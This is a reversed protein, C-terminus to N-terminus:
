GPAPRPRAAHRGETGVSRRCPASDPRRCAARGAVSSARRLAGRHACDHPLTAAVSLQQGTIQFLAAGYIDMPPLEDLWARSISPRTATAHDRGSGSRGQAPAYVGAEVWTAAARTWRVETPAATGDNGPRPCKCSTTDPWRGERRNCAAAPSSTESTSRFSAPRKSSHVLHTVKNSVGNTAATEDIARQINHGITPPADFLVVGDPTTLFASEYVGETVWYLNREVQGVYYGQENVTPGLTSPPSPRTLRAPDFQRHTGHHTEKSRDTCGIM